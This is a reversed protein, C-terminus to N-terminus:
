ECGVGGRSSTAVPLRQRILTLVRCVRVDSRYRLYDEIEAVLRERAGPDNAMALLKDDSLAPSFYRLEYRAILDRNEANRRLVLVATPERYVPAWDARPFIRKLEESMSVVAYSINWPQLDDPRRVYRLTDGFVYHHNFQFIRHAPYLAYSLYGGVDGSNYLNGSVNNALIFRVAGVPAYDETPVIGTWIGGPPQLFRVEILYALAIAVGIGIGARPAWVGLASGRQIGGPTARLAALAPVMVLAAVGMARSHRLALVLFPVASLMSSLEITRWRLGIWLLCVGLAVFFEPHTSWTPARFEEVAQVLPNNRTFELFIDYSMVGYPNAVWIVLALIMYRNFIRLREPPMPQFGPFASMRAAILRKLNEGCTYAVLLAVGFVAGHLWDWLLLTIPIAALVRASLTGVRYGHVIWGYLVIFLLSFVEPRFNFRQIGILMAVASLLAASWPKAGLATSTLFLLVAIALGILVDVVALGIDGTTAHTLYMLLQALWEHNSFAVGAHTYSFIEENLIQGQALMERGNALHWHLDFDPVPCTVIVLCACAATVPASWRSLWAPIPKM